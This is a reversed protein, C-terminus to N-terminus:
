SARKRAISRTLGACLRRVSTAHGYLKEFSAPDVLKQDLAVYLCSQVESASRMSYRLFRRLEIRSGSDFGEAINNMCSVAARRVQDTLSADSAFPRHSSVAYVAQTLMRAEQWAELEEFRRVLAM